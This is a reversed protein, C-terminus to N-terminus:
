RGVREFPCAVPSHVQGLVVLAQDGTVPALDYGRLDVYLAATFWGQAWARHAAILALATKGVGAMGAVASVVGSGVPGKAPSAAPPTSAKQRNSNPTPALAALLRNVEQKRGTFVAPPAPLFTPLGLIPPFSGVQAGLTTPVLNAGAATDTREERARALQNLWWRRDVKEGAWQSWVTVLALVIDDNDRQPMKFRDINKPAWDSARKGIFDEAGPLGSSQVARELVSQSCSLKAAM